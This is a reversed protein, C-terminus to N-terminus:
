VISCRNATEDVSRATHLLEAAFIVVSRNIHAAIEAAIGRRIITTVVIAPVGRGRGKSRIVENAKDTTPNINGAKCNLVRALALRRSNRVESEAYRSRTEIM